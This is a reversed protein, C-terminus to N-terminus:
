RGRQACCQYESIGSRCRASMPGSSSFMARTRLRSPALRPSAARSVPSSRISGAFAAPLLGHPHRDQPTGSRSAASGTLRDRELIEVQEFYQALAGAMALGGIGAGIVVARKGLKHSAHPKQETFSSRQGILKAM